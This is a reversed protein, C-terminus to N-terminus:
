EKSFPNYKKSFENLNQGADVNMTSCVERWLDDKQQASLDLGNIMNIKNELNTDKLTRSILAMSNLFSKVFAADASARFGDNFGTQLAKESYNESEDSVYDRFGENKLKNKIKDMDRRNM